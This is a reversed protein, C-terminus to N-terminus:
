IHILSLELLAKMPAIGIGAALLLVGRRTRVGEHLRGYPGEVLVRTGPRMTALRRTGDGAAAVSIQLSHGDPAASVSDRICM